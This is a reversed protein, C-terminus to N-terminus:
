YNTVFLAAPVQWFLREMQVTEVNGSTHVARSTYLYSQAPFNVPEGINNKADTFALRTQTEVPQIILLEANQIGFEISLNVNDLHCQFLKNEFSLADQLVRNTIRNLTFASDEQVILNNEDVIIHDISLSGTQLDNYVVAIDLAIDDCLGTESQYYIDFSYPVTSGLSQLSLSDPLDFYFTYLEFPEIYSTVVTEKEPLTIEVRSANTDILDFNSISLDDFTVTKEETSDQSMAAQVGLNAATELQNGILQDGTLQISSSAQYLATTSIIVATGIVLVVLLLLQGSEDYACAFLSKIKM